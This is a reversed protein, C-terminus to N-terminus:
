KRHNLVVGVMKFGFSPFRVVKPVANLYSPLRLSGLAIVCIRVYVNRDLLHCKVAVVRGSRQLLHVLGFHFVNLIRDWGSQWEDDTVECCQMWCREDALMAGRLQRLQVSSPLCQTSLGVTSGAATFSQTLSLCRDCM